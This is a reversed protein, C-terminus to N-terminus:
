PAILGKAGSFTAVLLIARCIAVSLDAAEAEYRDVTELTKAEEDIKVVEFCVSYAVMETSIRGACMYFEIYQRDPGAKILTVEKVADWALSFHSSFAPEYGVPLGLARAVLADLEPGAELRNIETRTMSM